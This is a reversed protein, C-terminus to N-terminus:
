EEISEEIEVDEISEITTQTMDNTGGGSSNPVIPMNAVGYYGNVMETYTVAFEAMSRYRYKIDNQLESLDRVPPNLAIAMDYGAIVDTMGESEVFNAFDNLDSMATNVYNETVDIGEESTVLLGKTYLNVELTTGCHYKKNGDEDEVSFTTRKIGSVKLTVYPLQPKTIIQESWIITAGKFFLDAVDYIKEKVETLNM